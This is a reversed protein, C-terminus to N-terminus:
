NRLTGLDYNEFIRGLLMEQSKEFFLVPCPWAPIYQFFNTQLYFCSFAELTVLGQIIMSSIMALKVRRQARNDDCPANKTALLLSHCVFNNYSLNFFISIDLDSTLPLVQECQFPCPAPIYKYINKINHPQQDYISSIAERIFLGKACFDNSTIQNLCPMIFVASERKLTTM